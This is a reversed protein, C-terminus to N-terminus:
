GANEAVAKPVCKRNKAFSYLRRCASITGETLFMMWIIMMIMNPFYTALGPIQLPMLFLLFVIFYALDFISHEKENFFMVVVIFLYIGSYFASNVPLMILVSILLGMKKWNKKLFPSVAFSTAALIMAVRECLPALVDVPKGTLKQMLATLGFKYLISQQRYVETSIQLNRFFFAINNFGGKFFLFPLFIFILGYLATRIAEFWRKEYILLIGLLAPYGKLAAAMALAVFSLERLVAKKSNYNMLYFLVFVFSLVVSNGREFTFMFIGSILLSFCVAAKEATVGKKFTYIMVFMMVSIFLMFFMASILGLPTYGTEFAGINVYGTLKSFPYMLVYAFPFYAKESASVLSEYPNREFVYGCVNFFDSFLEEGSRFFVLAQWSGRTRVLLLFFMCFTVLSFVLFAFTLYSNKITKGSLKM